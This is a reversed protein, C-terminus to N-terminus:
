SGGGGCLYAPITGATLTNQLEDLIKKGSRRDPVPLRGSERLSRIWAQVPFDALVAYRVLQQCQVRMAASTLLSDALIDSIYRIEEEAAANGPHDAFSHQLQALYEAAAPLVAEAQRKLKSKDPLQEGYDSVYKLFQMQHPGLYHGGAEAIAGAEMDHLRAARDQACGGSVSGRYVSSSTVLDAEPLCSSTMLDPYFSRGSWASTVKRCLYLSDAPAPPDPEAACSGFNVLLVQPYAAEAELKELVAGTCAAAQIPGAGTVTVVLPLDEARFQQYARLGTRKMRYHEVLPSAEPYLACFLLIIPNSIM